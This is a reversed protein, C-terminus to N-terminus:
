DGEIQSKLEEALLSAAGTTVVQDGAKFDEATFWGGKLVHNLAVQRREFHGKEEGETFVWAEGEFYLVAEQPILVGSAEEGDGALQVGAALGAPLQCPPKELTLFWAAAQSKLDVSPAASLVEAELPDARGPVLVRAKAPQKDPVEAGAPEARILVTDGSLLRATLDARQAEIVPGWELLFRQEAAQLKLRDAAALAEAQELAKRSINEGTGFLTRSRAVEAESAKLAAEALLRENQLTVLPVPDVVRGFASIQEQWVAPALPSLKVGLREIAEADMPKAEEGAAAEEEEAPEHGFRAKLAFSGWIVATVAAILCLWTFIFRVPKM